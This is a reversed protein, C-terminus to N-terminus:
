QQLLERLERIRMQKQQAETDLESIDKDYEIGLRLCRQYQATQSDYNVFWAQLNIIEDILETRDM